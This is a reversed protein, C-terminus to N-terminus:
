AGLIEEIIKQVIERAPDDIPLSDRIKEIKMMKELFHGKSEFRNLAIKGQKVADAVAQKSIDLNEGTETLGIDKYLVEKLILRQTKTLMDGYIDYLRALRMREEFNRM